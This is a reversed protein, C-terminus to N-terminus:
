GSLTFSEDGKVNEIQELDSVDSIQDMASANKLWDSVIVKRISGDAETLVYVTEDKSVESDSSTTESADTTETETSSVSPDTQTEGAKQAYISTSILGTCLTLSLLVATIKKTKNM